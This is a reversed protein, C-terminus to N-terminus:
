CNHITSANGPRRRLKFRLPASIEMWRAQRENLIKKKGFPELNKHDPLITFPKKLGWLESYWKKVCKIIALLETDHIDYNCEAPLQKASFLAVPEWLKSILNLQTLVGGVVWRSADSEFQIELELSFTALM